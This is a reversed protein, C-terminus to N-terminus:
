VLDALTIRRLTLTLLAAVSRLARPPLTGSTSRTACVQTSAPACPMVTWGRGSSRCM